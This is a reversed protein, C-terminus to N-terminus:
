PNLRVLHALIPKYNVNTKTPRINQLTLLYM